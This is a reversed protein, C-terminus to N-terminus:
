PDFSNRVFVNGLKHEIWLGNQKNKAASFLEVAQWIGRINETGPPGFIDKKVM